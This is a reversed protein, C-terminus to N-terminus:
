QAITGTAIPFGRLFETIDQAAKGARQLKTIRLADVGCTIVLPEAIVTGATVSSMAGGQDTVIDVEHVRLREGNIDMTLGPWPTFARLTREIQEATQSWDIQSEEKTMKHAYLVGEEPQIQATLLGQDLKEIAPVIMHAGLVAMKDMLSASTDQPTIALTEIELMPGTDLGEDMQMITVGTETDGTQIARQVPAAGRWRPLLSGHINVCGLRPADLIVKRLILGYAAVVAVDAQLGQFAEVEEVPKLSKPTRVMLGLDEAAQHVATKTLKHGRGQPRPPQSYVCVIEHGAAHLAKLAPVAFDPSGMFIVRMKIM